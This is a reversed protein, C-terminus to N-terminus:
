AFYAACSARSGRPISRPQVGSWCRRCGLRLIAAHRPRDLLDDVGGHASRTANRNQGHAALFSYCPLLALRLRDRLRTGDRLPDVLIPWLCVLYMWIGVIAYGALMAFVGGAIDGTQVGVAINVSFVVMAVTAAIGILFATGAFQRMARLADAFDVPEGRAILAALRYMGAVPVALLPFLVIVPPFVATGILLAIFLAGWIANAPVVRWSNFFFDSAAARLSGRLSPRDPIRSTM